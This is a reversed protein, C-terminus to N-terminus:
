KIFPTGIPLLPKGYWPNLVGAAALYFFVISVGLLIWGGVQAIFFDSPASDALGLGVTQFSYASLCSFAAVLLTMLLTFAKPMKLSAVWFIGFLGAVVALAYGDVGTIANIMPATTTVGTTPDTAAVQPGFYPLMSKMIPNVAAWCSVLPGFVIAVLAPLTEGRMFHIIGAITVSILVAMIWGILSLAGADIQHTVPNFVAMDVQGSFLAFLCLAATAIVMNGIASPDGYQSQGNPM